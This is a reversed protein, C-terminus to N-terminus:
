VIINSSLYGIAYLVVAKGDYDFAYNSLDQYDEILYKEGTTANVWGYFEDSSSSPPSIVPLSVRDGENATKISPLNANTVYNKGAFGDYYFMIQGDELNTDLVFIAKLTINKTIKTGFEYPESKDELSWYVFENNEQTPNNIPKNIGNNNLAVNQTNVIDNGVKFFVTYSDIWCAKLTIDSNVKYSDFDFAVNEDELYWYSFIYGTKTPDLPRAVTKNAKVQQSSITTGGMTDFSVTYKITEEKKCSAFMLCTIITLVALVISFLKKRM